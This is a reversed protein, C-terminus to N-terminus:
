VSAAISGTSDGSPLQEDEKAAGVFTRRRTRSALQVELQHRFSLRDGQRALVLVVRHRGGETRVSRPHREGLNAVAPGHANSVHITGTIPPLFGVAKRGLATPRLQSPSFRTSKEVIVSCAETLTTV